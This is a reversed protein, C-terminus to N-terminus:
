FRPGGSAAAPLLPAACFQLRVSASAAPPGGSLRFSDVHVKKAVSQKCKGHRQHQHGGAGQEPHMAAGVRHTLLNFGHEILAYIPGAITNRPIQCVPQVIRLIQAFNCAAKGTQLLLDLRHLVCPQIQVRRTAMMLLKSGIFRQCVRYIRQIRGHGLGSICRLLPLPIQVIKIGVAHGDGM